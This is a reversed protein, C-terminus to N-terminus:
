VTEGASNPANGRSFIAIATDGYRRSDILSMGHLLPAESRSAHELVVVGDDAVRTVLAGEDLTRAVLGSAVDAYPPDILVLDFLPEGAISLAGAGLAREIPAVVVKTRAAVGLSAANARIAAVAERGREVLTAHSAGRSLAEFALSGSGAYLDLVRAGALTVHSALISFLAERVRDSTPRTATGDPAVLRRSRLAGGTIRM